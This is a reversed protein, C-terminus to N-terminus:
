VKEDVISAVAKPGEMIGRGYRLCEDPTLTGIEDIACALKM